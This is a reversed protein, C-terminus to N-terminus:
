ELLDVAGVSAVHVLTAGAIRRREGPNSKEKGRDAPEIRVISDGGESKARRQLSTQAPPFAVM